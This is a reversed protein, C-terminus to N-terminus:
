PTAEVVISGVKTQALPLQDAQCSSEEALVFYEDHVLRSGIDIGLLDILYYVKLSLSSLILQGVLNSQNQLGNFKSQNNLEIGMFTCFM